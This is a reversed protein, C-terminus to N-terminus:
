RTATRGGTRHLGNPHDGLFEALSFTARRDLEGVARALRASAPRGLVPETLAQFKEGIEAATLPRQRTGRPADVSETLVVSGVRVEVEYPFRAPYQASLGPDEQVLVRRALDHLAPDARRSRDLQSVDLRGDTLAVAVLYPLSFQCETFSAGPETYRDGIASVVQSYSRVTVREIDQWAGPLRGHLIIAADIAGHAYGCCPYLKIACDGVTFESGLGRTARASDERTVGNVSLYGHPADIPAASFGRAALLAAEVGVAAAQAAHAPKSSGGQWLTDAASAPLLYGAINLAQVLVSDSLGLLRGAAAAAGLAGATGTTLVDHGQRPYLLGALRNAVEYGAVVAAVTDAGSAGQREGMALAAPLVTAGPHSGGIKYTDELDLLDALWANGFAAMRAPLRAPVGLATAEGRGGNESLYALMEAAEEVGLAGVMVGVTDLIALVIRDRIVLPLDKSQLTAAFRALEDSISDM